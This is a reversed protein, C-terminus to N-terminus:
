FFSRKSSNDIAHPGFSIAVGWAAVSRSGKKQSAKIQDVM